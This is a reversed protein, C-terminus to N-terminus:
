RVHGLLAYFRQSKSISPVPQVLAEDFLARIGRSVRELANEDSLEAELEYQIHHPGFFTEDLELHQLVKELYLKFTTRRNVFSGLLYLQEKGLVQELRQCLQLRRHEREADAELAGYAIWEMLTDGGALLTLAKQEDLPMEHELRVFLDTTASFSAAKAKIALTYAGEQKRIRLLLGQGYLALSPTDFIFNAQEVHRPPEIAKERLCQEVKSADSPNLFGYKLEIENPLTM